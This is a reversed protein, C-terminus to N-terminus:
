LHSNDREVLLFENRVIDIIQPRGNMGSISVTLLLSRKLKFYGLGSLCVDNHTVLDQFRQAETGWRITPINRLLVLPKKAEDHLNAAYFCVFVLRLILFVLVYWFYLAHRVTDLSKLSNLFRVCILYLDSLFCVVILHGLRKNVYDVFHMFKLYHSKYRTWFAETLVRDSRPLNYQLNMRQMLRCMAISIIILFVDVFMRIFTGIFQVFQILVAKWVAYEIVSFVQPFQQRFYRHMDGDIGVCQAGREMGAIFALIEAIMTLVTMTIILVDFTVKLSFRRGLLQENNELSKEIESWAAMINDWQSALVMFQIIVVLDISYYIFNVIKDFELNDKFSKWLSLISMGLLVAAIIFSYIFKASLVRFRWGGNKVASVPLIGMFQVIILTLRICQRFTANFLNISGNFPRPNISRYDEQIYEVKTSSSKPSIKDLIKKLPSSVMEIFHQATKTSINEVVSALTSISYGRIHINLSEAGWLDNILFVTM